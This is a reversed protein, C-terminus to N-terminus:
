PLSLRGRTPTKTDLTPASLRLLQVKKKRGTLKIKRGEERHQQGRLITAPPAHSPPLIVSGGDHAGCIAWWGPTQPHCPLTAQWPHPHTWATGTSHPRPDAPVDMRVKPWQARRNAVDGGKAQMPHHYCRAFNVDNKHLFYVEGPRPPISWKKTVLPHYHKHPHARSVPSPPGYKYCGGLQPQSGTRSPRVTCNAFTRRFRFASGKM